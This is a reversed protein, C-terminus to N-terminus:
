PKPATPPRIVDTVLASVPDLPVLRLNASSVWSFGAPAPVTEPARLLYVVIFVGRCEPLADENCLGALEVRCKAEGLLVRGAALALNRLGLLGTGLQGAAPPISTDHLLVGQESVLVTDGRQVVVGLRVEKADLSNKLGAAAAFYTEETLSDLVRLDMATTFGQIRFLERRPLALVLTDDDM